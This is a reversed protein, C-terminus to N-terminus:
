LVPVRNELTATGDIEAGNLELSTTRYGQKRAMICFLRELAHALTGDQLGAEPEFDLESEAITQLPRLAPPAFWFM